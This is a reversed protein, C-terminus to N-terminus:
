SVESILVHGVSRSGGTYIGQSWSPKVVLETDQSAEPNPLHAMEREESERGEEGEGEGGGGEGGQVRDGEMMADEETEQEDTDRDQVLRGSHVSTCMSQVTCVETSEDMM